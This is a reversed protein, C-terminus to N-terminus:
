KKSSNNNNYMSFIDQNFHVLENFDDQEMGNDFYRNFKRIDCKELNTYMSKLLNSIKNNIQLM